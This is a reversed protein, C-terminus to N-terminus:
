KTGTVARIARKQQLGIAEPAPKVEWAGSVYRREYLVHALARRDAQNLLLCKDIILGRVSREDPRGTDVGIGLQLQEAARELRKTAPADLQFGVDPIASRLARDRTEACVVFARQSTV